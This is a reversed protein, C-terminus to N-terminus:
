LVLKVRGLHDQLDLDTKYSRDRNIPNNQFFFFEMKYGFFYPLGLLAGGGGGGGGGAGLITSIPFQLYLHPPEYHHILM